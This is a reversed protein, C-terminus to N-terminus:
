LPTSAAPGSPRSGRILVDVLRKANDPWGPGFPVLSVGYLPLLLEWGDTDARLDASAVARAVLASVAAHILGSSGRYLKESGGPVSNLVPLIIQKAAIYDVFLLMWTRLADLPPHSRSLREAAAALEETDARYVAEVLHDRTPFHRYLTGSGVQAQKAINDLSAAAGDRAFAERAVALIRERNRAADSRLKRDPPHVASM